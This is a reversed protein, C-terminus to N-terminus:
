ANRHTEWSDSQGTLASVLRFLGSLLFLLQGPQGTLVAAVGRPTAATPSASGQLDCAGFAGEKWRSAAGSRVM